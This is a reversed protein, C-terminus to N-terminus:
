QTEAPDIRSDLAQYLQNQETAVEQLQQVKINYDNIMSELNELEKNYEYVADNYKAVESRYLDINKPTQILKIAQLRQQLNDGRARLGTTAADIQLKLASLSTTLNDALVKRRKFEEQYLQAYEVVKSRNHLFQKYYRELNTPLTVVETGFVAFQETGIDDPGTKKYADIKSRLVDDQVTEYYEQLENNLKKREDSSLRDYAQHLM